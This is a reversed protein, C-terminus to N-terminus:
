DGEQVINYFYLSKTVGSVNQIKIDRGGYENRIHTVVLGSDDEIPILEVGDMKDPLDLKVNYIDNAYAPLANGVSFVDSFKCGSRESINYIVTTGTNQSAHTDWGDMGKYVDGVKDALFTHVAMYQLESEDSFPGFWFPTDNAAGFGPATTGYDTFWGYGIDGTREGGWEVIHFIVDDTATDLCYYSQFGASIAPEGLDTALDIGSADRSVDYRLSSWPKSWVYVKTLQGLTWGQAELAAQPVRFQTKLGWGYWYTTIEPYVGVSRTRVLEMYAYETPVVILENEIVGGITINDLERFLTIGDSAYIKIDYNISEDIDTVEFRGVSDTTEEYLIPTTTGALYFRVIYGSLGNGYPDQCVNFYNSM